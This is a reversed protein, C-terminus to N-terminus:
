ILKKFLFVEDWFMDIFLYIRLRPKHSIVYFSVNDHVYINVYLLKGHNWETKRLSSVQDFNNKSKTLELLSNFGTLLIVILNSQESALHNTVM